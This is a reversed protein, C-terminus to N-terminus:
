GNRNEREQVYWTFYPNWLEPTVSDNWYVLVYIGELETKTVRQGNTPFVIDERDSGMVLDGAKLQNTNKTVVLPAVYEGKIWDRNRYCLLCHMEGEYPCCEAMCGCSWIWECDKGSVECRDERQVEM